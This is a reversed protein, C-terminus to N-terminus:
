AKLFMYGKHIKKFGLILFLFIILSIQISASLIQGSSWNAATGYVDIYITNQNFGEGLSCEVLLGGPLVKKHPFCLCCIGNPSGSMSKAISPTQSSELRMM